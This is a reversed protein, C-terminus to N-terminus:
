SLQGLQWCRLRLRAALARSRSRLITLSPRRSAKASSRDTVGSWSDWSILSASEALARANAVAWVM